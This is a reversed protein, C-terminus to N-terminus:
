NQQKIINILYFAVTFLLRVKYYKHGASEVAIHKIPVLDEMEKGTM